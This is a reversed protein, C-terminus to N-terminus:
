LSPVVLTQGVRIDDESSLRDRNADYLLRWREANGMTREAIRHLNDGPQVTYTKESGRSSAVAAPPEARSPTQPLAVSRAPSGPVRLTMGSRLDKDSKLQDPNATLWERWRKATGLHKTSLDSLTDGPEVTVTKAAAPIVSVSALDGAPASQRELTPIVLKAGAYVMGRDNVHKPNAQALVSWREPDGYHARAIQRLSEGTKVTHILTARDVADALANSPAVRDSAPPAASISHRGSSALYASAPTVGPEFRPLGPEDSYAAYRPPTRMTSWSRGATPNAATNAEGPQVSTSSTRATMEAPAPRAPLTVPQPVPAERVLLAQQQAEIQQADIEEPTALKAQPTVPVPAQRALPSAQGLHTPLDQGLQTLAQQSGQVKAVSVLDSVVIGILLIMGLGVLLGLKTERTM